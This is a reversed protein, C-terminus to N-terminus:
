PAAVRLLFDTGRVAITGTPTQISASGPSLKAILGSIYHLSGEGLWAVFSYRRKAPAFEFARLVDDDIVIVIEPERHAHWVGVALRQQGLVIRLGTLEGADGTDGALEDRDAAQLAIHDFVDYAPHAPKVREPLGPAKKTSTISGSM